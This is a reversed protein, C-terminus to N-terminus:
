KQSGCELSEGKLFKKRGKANLTDEFKVDPASLTVQASRWMDRLWYLLDGEFKQLAIEKGIFNLEQLDRASMIRDAFKTAIACTDM